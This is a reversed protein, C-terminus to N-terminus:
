PAMKAMGPPLLAEPRPAWDFWYFTEVNYLAAVANAVVLVVLWRRARPNAWATSVVLLFIWISALYLYRFNHAMPSIWNVLNAAPLASALAALILAANRRWPGASSPAQVCAWAAFGLVAARAPVGLATETNLGLLPVPLGRTFFSTLTTLQLTFHPPVGSADPYGGIGHLVALRIGLLVLTVAAVGAFVRGARVLPISPFNWSSRTAWLLVVLIPFCYASEKALVGAAFSGLALWLARTSGLLADIGALLALLTFLAALLDFRAGPWLVPEYNVGAVAFLLGTWRAAGSEVGLRQALRVVLLANAIQLGINQLHYGWLRTDGFFLRDIWLSLFTLPRYFGDPQKRVFLHLAAPVSNLGATSARHTWDDPEAFNVFLSPLYLLATAAAIMAPSPSWGGPSAGRDVAPAVRVVTALLVAGSLYLLPKFLGHAALHLPGLRIDYSSIFILLVANAAALLVAGSTAHVALSRASGTV